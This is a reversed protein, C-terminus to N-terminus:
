LNCLGPIEKRSVPPPPVNVPWESSLYGLLGTQPFGMTLM